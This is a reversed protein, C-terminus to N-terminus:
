TNDVRYGKPSVGEWSKFAKRFNAVDSYGVFFAIEQVTLKSNVLLECAKFYKADKLVKTYSTNEDGLRRHLTRQSLKLYKAVEDLSPFENEFSLLYKRLRTVLSEEIQLKLLEQECINKAQELSAQDRMLLPRDIESQLLSISAVRCDFDIPYNFCSIYEKEYAPKAYPFSIKSIPASNQTIQMLLNYITFIASELFPIKITNLPYCEHLNITLIKESSEINVRLLPTRTNLFRSFIEVMERVSGSAIIAYGLMGHATLGLKKGVKLGIAPENSLTVATSVLRTFQTFSIKHSPISLQDLNLNANKLWREVDVGEATLQEGIQHIYYTPILINAEDM